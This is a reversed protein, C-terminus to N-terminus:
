SRFGLLRCFILLPSRPLILPGCTASSLRSTLTAGQILRPFAGFPWVAPRFQSQRSQSPVPFLGWLAASSPPLLPNLRPAPEAGPKRPTGHALRRTPLTKFCLGWIPFLLRLRPTIFPAGISPTTAPFRLVQLPGPLPRSSLTNTRLRALLAAWPRPMSARCFNVIGPSARLFAFWAGNSQPSAPGLDLDLLASPPRGWTSGLFCVLWFVHRSRGGTPLDLPAVSFPRRTPYLALGPGPRRRSPVQTAFCPASFGAFNEVAEFSGPRSPRGSVPSLFLPRPPALCMCLTRRPHCRRASPLSPRGGPM